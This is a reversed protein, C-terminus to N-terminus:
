IQPKIFFLFLCQLRPFGYRLDTFDLQGILALSFLLGCSLIIAIKKMGFSHYLTVDCFNVNTFKHSKNLDDSIDFSFM